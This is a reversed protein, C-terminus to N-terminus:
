RALDEGELPGLPERQHRAARYRRIWSSPTWCSRGFPHRRLWRLWRLWMTRGCHTAVRHRMPLLGCASPGIVEPDNMVPVVDLHGQGLSEVDHMVLLQGLEGLREHTRDDLELHAGVELGVLWELLLGLARGDDVHDVEAGGSWATTWGAALDRPARAVTNALAALASHRTM